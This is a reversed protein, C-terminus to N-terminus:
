HGQFAAHSPRQVQQRTGGASFASREAECTGAFCSSHTGLWFNNLFLFRYSRPGPSAKGDDVYSEWYQRQFRQRAADRNEEQELMDATHVDARDSDATPSPDAASFKPSKVDLLMEM